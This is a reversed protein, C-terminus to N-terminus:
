FDAPIYFSINRETIPHVFKIHEAHLHLRTDINGYLDDGVIPMGLGLQHAAHVRLQHTRGTVPFFHILTRGEKEEMVKYVTRAPKGHVDDVIQRPRNELNVRLPLNIEGMPPLGTGELLAVYRKKVTREAFQKQVLQHAKATKTMVLIGSTSMDLRHVILNNKAEPYKEEMRTQLSDSVNRGPVSLFEAPKNVVVLHDDEYIIEIQKGEATNELMPNDDVELGQLMHGLIPECKGRCAPYYQKHLRVESRMPAGWWFEAIAIPRLNHKYAFHLLKPAACEGAGAPPQGEVTSKFIDLLSKEEGQASLFTYQKFLEQQISFSKEKREKKWGSLLDAYKDLGKKVAGVRPEWYIILSKHMFQGRLSENKLREAFIEYDSASLEAEAIKRRAKRERLRDKSKQLIEKSDKLEKEYLEKWFLYESKIELAEISRNIKNVEEEGVRFFSGETLM